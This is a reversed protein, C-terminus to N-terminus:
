TLSTFWNYLLAKLTMEKIMNPFKVASVYEGFMRKISSFVSEVIWRQGYSVSYKWIDFNSKQQLVVTNRKYHNYKRIRSNKRVKIGAKIDNFSLFRFIKNSDYSGDALLTNVQVNQRKVIDEVLAQLIEGDHIKEDTVSLSLIKKKKIDVSVHIKLYGKRAIVHDNWKRYMWEGRNTVKIGTSDIAIVINDGGLHNNVKIDLKNIRRSITSYDPISPIKKDEAHARVIGETQRYPLHFYVRAYGLLLLFSNPYHFPEGVKGENMQELENDWNDIVDFGLLVEGRKVLSENYHNWNIKV